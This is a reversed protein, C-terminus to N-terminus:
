KTLKDWEGSKIKQALETYGGIFTDEVFIMPVTSYGGAKESGEQRAANDNTVDIDDFADGRDNLVKKAGHCYGCYATTYITIKKM